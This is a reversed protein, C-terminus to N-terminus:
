KIAIDKEKFVIEYGLEDAIDKMEVFKLTKNKLKNYFGAYSNSYSKKLHLKELLKRLTQGRYITLIKVFDILEIKEFKYDM